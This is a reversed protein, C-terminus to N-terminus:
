DEFNWVLKVIVTDAVDPVGPTLNTVAQRWNRNWVVYLDKDETIVWHLRTNFGLQDVSTDYQVFTAISLDPNFSWAGTLQWLRQVFHGQPLTAFVSENSLGLQLRGELGSWNGTVTNNQAHGSYFQGGIIVFNATFASASPTDWELRYSDFTYNGPPIAVNPDVQFPVSLSEYEQNLHLNLYDGNSGYAGFPTLILKSSQTHGNLDDIQNFNEGFVYNEVFPNDNTAPRPYWNLVEYYQRTGPRPLFGLTPDFADGFVNLQAEWYWYINPFNVDFGWGKTNGTTHVGGTDGAWGTVVLNQDTLFSSTHWGTDFGVFSEHSLGNPNGNTAITGIQFQDSLSYAFRGVALNTAPVGQASGMNVDLVGMSLDGARGILKAGEDIPVTLGNVLGITRSYYPIFGGNLDGNLPGGNFAFLSQGDLFFNRKEPFFLSFRTLNIQQSDAETQAFDTNATLTGSLQPTFSYKVEGGAEFSKDGPNLQDHRALVYPSLQWSGGQQMGAMGEIVGMHQIDFVSGALPRAFWVLGYDNRRMYRLVNFGWQDSSPDFQFSRTNFAIELDWGTDTKRAKADWIGDWSFDVNTSGISVLGDQRAGGFNVRFVYAYRHDGFTSIVISMHDDSDQNGERQLTHTQINEPDPDTAHVAVYLHDDDRLLRVETHYANAALPNPSDEILQPIVAAGAWEPKSLDGDLKLPGPIRPVRLHPPQNLDLSAQPADDGRAGLPLAVLALSLLIGSCRVPRM